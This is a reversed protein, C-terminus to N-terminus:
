LEKGWEVIRQGKIGGKASSYQVNSFETITFSSNNNSLCIPQEQNDYFFTLTRPRINMNVEVAVTRNEEIRSNGKIFDGIHGLDGDKYYRVIKKENKGICPEDNSGFVASSDAIGFRFRYDPHKELIGGFRVIGSTIVPNFSVTSRGFENTKIIKNEQQIAHDPNPIISQYAITILSSPVSQQIQQVKPEPKSQEKPSAIQPRLKSIEDKLNQVVTILRTNDSQSKQKEQLEKQKEQKLKDNEAHETDARRKEQDKESQAKQKEQIEKQKEQEAINARNKEQDRESYAKQKEQIEKQKEQEAINTRNKEQDRESYAKQKEQIEKQKEQEAINARNKEQDRESYAKQKEYLEKQKEQETINVKQKLKDIESLAKQKEQLEKQKEQEAINARNKEQDREVIAIQNDRQQQNREEIIRDRENLANIKEQKVKDNEALIKIKEQKMEDLESLTEIKELEFIRAHNEAEIKMQEAEIIRQKLINKEKEFTIKEDEIIQIEYQTREEGLLQKLRANEMLIIQNNAQFQIREKEAKRRNDEEHIKM